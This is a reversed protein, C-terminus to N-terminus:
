LVAYSISGLVQPVLLPKNSYSSGAGLTYQILIELSYQVNLMAASYCQQYNM